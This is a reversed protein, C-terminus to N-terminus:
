THAQRISDSQDFRVTKMLVGVWSVMMMVCSIYLIVVMFMVSQGDAITCPDRGTAQSGEGPMTAVAIAVNYFVAGSFILKVYWETATLTYTHLDGM